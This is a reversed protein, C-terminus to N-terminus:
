FCIPVHVDFIIMFNDNALLKCHHRDFLLFFFVPIRRAEVRRFLDSRSDIDVAFCDAGCHYFEAPAGSFLGLFSGKNTKEGAPSLASTSRSFVKDVVVM